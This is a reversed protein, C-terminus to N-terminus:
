GTCYLISDAMVWSGDVFLVRGDEHLSDIQIIDIINFETQLCTFYSNIRNFFNM